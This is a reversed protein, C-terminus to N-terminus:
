FSYNHTIKMGGHGTHIFKPTELHLFQEFVWQGGIDPLNIACYNSQAILTYGWFGSQLRLPM